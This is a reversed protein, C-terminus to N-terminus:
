SADRHLTASWLRHHAWLFICMRPELHDPNPLVNMVDDVYSEVTRRSLALEIAIAGYNLGRRIGDVVREQQATLPRLATHQTEAETM